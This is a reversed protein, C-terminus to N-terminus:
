PNCVPCYQAPARDPGESRPRSTRHECRPCGLIEAKVLDTRCGCWECPLGRELDVVGWGPTHCSPCCQQLRRALRVVLTRIARRRTPNLHARMDTEVHALGDASLRACQQVAAALAEASQIGKFLSGPMFGSKPRVILAHSPFRARSLFAALEEVSAADTHSYNTQETVLREAVQFGAEDDVFLLLEHNLAVFPAYPHPGFSGESALGLPLGLAAMGLRAKRLATDLPSGSREVEGSFTGLQDTDISEPVVVELGVAAWLPRAILREKGHKTALAATRGLYRSAM